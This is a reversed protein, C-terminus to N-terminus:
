FIITTRLGYTFADGYANPAHPNDSFKITPQVTLTPRVNWRYTLEYAGEYPSSAPTGFSRLRKVADSSVHAYSFGLALVDL